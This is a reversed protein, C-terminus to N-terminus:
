RFEFAEQHFARPALGRATLGDRMAHGFGTPGCFWISADAWAPVEAILREVSLSEGRSSDLVHLRVKAADAIANLRAVIEPDAQRTSYFLDVPPHGTNEAALTELRAVFPTLGIGGAIWIQRTQEPVFDFCGYPGEVIIPDGVRLRSPLTRTYDGLSKIAFRVHGDGQWGSAITFPHAGERTDFTVLAFQGSQHGKWDESLRARVELVGLGIPHVESIEGRTRRRTGIWGAVSLLAAVAGGTMLLAALPGAVGTWYPAPMFVVSHVAVLLFVLPMLRHLRAFHRYPIRRLLAVAVLALALYLGWEGFDKAISHWSDFLKVSLSRADEPKDLLGARRLAKSGLKIAYHAAGLGVALLAVQRHVRYLQDLGGFLSELRPGRLALLMAASMMTASLYGSGYLLALYIAWPRDPSPSFLAALPQSSVWAASLLALLAYVYRHM